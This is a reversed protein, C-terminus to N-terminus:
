TEGQRKCEFQDQAIELWGWGVSNRTGTPRWQVLDNVKWKGCTGGLEMDSRCIKRICWPSKYKKRIDENRINDWQTEGLMIRENARLTTGLKKPSRVTLTMTEMGYNMVPLICINFLKKKLNVIIKWNKFINSLNGVAAIYTLIMQNNRSNLKGNGNTVSHGIHNITILSVFSASFWNKTEYTSGIKASLM